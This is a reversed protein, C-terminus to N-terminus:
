YHLTGGGRPRPDYAPVSWTEVTLNPLLNQDPEPQTPEVPVIDASNEADELVYAESLIGRATFDYPMWFFGKDGWGQGWSNIVKFAGGYRDDDYGVITIAHGGLDTGADTNYLSDAGTLQMLQEYVAIGGVVPRGNALAAKIQSTDNIRRWSSAKFTLAEQLAAGSPQTHYDGDRYPMTALTAVGRSV